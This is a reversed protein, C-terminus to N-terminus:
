PAIDQLGRKIAAVVKAGGIQGTREGIGPVVYRGCAKEGDAAVLAERGVEM